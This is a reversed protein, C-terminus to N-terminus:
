YVWQPTGAATPHATTHGHRCRYAPKHLTWHATLRRGCTACILLGTLAYRRSPGDAPTGIATIQQAATFEADSVLPSPDARSCRRAM